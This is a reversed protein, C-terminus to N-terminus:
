TIPLRVLPLTVADRHLYVWSSPMSYGLKRLLLETQNSTLLGGRDGSNSNMTRIRLRQESPIDGAGWYLSSRSSGYGHASVRWLLQLTRVSRCSSIMPLLPNRKFMKNFNDHGFWQEFAAVFFILLKIRPRTVARCLVGSTQKIHPM